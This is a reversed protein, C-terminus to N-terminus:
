ANCFIKTGILFGNGKISVLTDRYQGTLPLTRYSEDSMAVPALLTLTTTFADPLEERGCLGFPVSIRFLDRENHADAATEAPQVGHPPFAIM